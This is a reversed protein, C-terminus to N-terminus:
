QTSIYSYLFLSFPVNKNYRIIYQIFDNLFFNLSVSFADQALNTHM